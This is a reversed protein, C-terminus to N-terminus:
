FSYIKIKNYGFCDIKERGQRAAVAAPSQAYDLSHSAWAPSHKMASVFAQREDVNRRLGPMAPTQSM